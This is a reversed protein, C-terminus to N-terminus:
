ALSLDLVSVAEGIRLTLTGTEPLHEPLPVTYAAFDDCGDSARLAIEVSQGACDATLICDQILSAARVTLQTKGGFPVGHYVLTGSWRASSVYHQHLPLAYGFRIGSASDYMQAAFAADRAGIQAGDLPLTAQLPLEASSGGARFEYMGRETLMRRSHTDYIQLIYAPIELTVTKTEGAALHVRAFGCLKRDPRRVASDRVTFYVQVVEDSDTEACNELTVAARVAGGGADTVTLTHYAFQAYSLGHGFPYLPKGTFYLYTTGATEIDYDTIPPLDHETRYWTLPLRGAPSFRGAIARAAATGLQAGAHTSYLIEPLTEQEACVAYPYSSILLLVTDPNAAHLQLALGPQVNLALTKRDYGEKATQVPHNGTCYLVFDHARAIAKGRETGSSVTEVTFVSNETITHSPVFRIRGDADATMRSAGLPEEFVTGDPPELLRFTERTFWDFIRRRHLHLTGDEMLRLYKGHRRSYLNQWNEGWNQLEFVADETVTDADAAASGDAHVTLYKGNAARVTVLDWLSDYTVTSLPFEARIGALVSVADTFHGTYWDMLNEDALCGLVAIKAPAERLPLLGSHKLLVLQEEAARLNAAASAPDALVDATLAHYPCDESFLGLRLRAYMVRALVADIDAWTLLGDALAKEAAARTLAPNDTMIDCGARVAEAYAQAHSPVFRHALVTQQFDAGDTVAFWLGWDDKLVTNLEPNALAPVGNIENYATMVSRAGGYKVAPMFAQYYYEYKLRPPLNANCSMRNQENNNACFHKLTPITKMYTSDAGALGRTYAATLEGALFVDEGYCEETRGWRPDRGMDVTPGWVCLAGKDGANHYARCENGAITGLQALLDRDFTAAMGIPQPLVTSPHADDRGVFGRAVETGIFFEPAGISDVAAQHTTLLSLKEDPTMQRVLAAARARFETEHMM